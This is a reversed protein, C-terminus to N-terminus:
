GLTLSAENTGYARIYGNMLKRDSSGTTNAPMVPM